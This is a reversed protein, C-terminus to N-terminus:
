HSRFRRRRSLHNLHHTELFATTSTSVDKGKHFPRYVRDHIEFIFMICSIFILMSVNLTMENDTSRLRYDHSLLSEFVTLASGVICAMRTVTVHQLAM